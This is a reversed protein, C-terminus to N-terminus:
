FGARNYPHRRWWSDPNALFDEVQAKVTKYSASLWCGDMSQSWSEWFVMAQTDTAEIGFPKLSEKIMNIEYYMEPLPAPRYPYKQYFQKDWETQLM